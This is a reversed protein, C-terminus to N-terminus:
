ESQKAQKEQETKTEIYIISKLKRKEAKLHNVATTRNSIIRITKKFFIMMVSISCKFATLNFPFLLMSARETPIKLHDYFEVSCIM